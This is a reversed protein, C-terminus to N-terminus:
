LRREGGEAGERGGEMGGEEEECLANGASEVPELWEESWCVQGAVGLKRLTCLRSNRRESLPSNTSSSPCGWLASVMEM